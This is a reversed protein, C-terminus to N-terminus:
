PSLTSTRTIRTSRSSRLISKSSIPPPLLTAPTPSPPARLPPAPRPLVPSSRRGARLWSGASALTRLLRSSFCASSDSALPLLPRSRPESFGLRPPDFRLASPLGAGPPELGAPALFRLALGHAVQFFDIAQVRDLRQQTVMGPPDFLN